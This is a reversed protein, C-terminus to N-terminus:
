IEPTGSVKLNRADIAKKNIIFNLRGGEEIFSICSGKKSNDSETIVLVSKSKTNESIASVEGNEGRAIFVADCGSVEGASINKLILGNPNKVKLRNELENFVESKGVVGLVINKHDDPWSVNEVFKLIFLAQIKSEQNQAMASSGMLLLTQLFLLLKKM